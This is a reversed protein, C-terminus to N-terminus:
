LGGGCARDDGGIAHRLVLVADIHGVAFSRENGASGFTHHHKCAIIDGIPIDDDHLVVVIHEGDIFVILFKELAFARFHGGALRNGSHSVAADGVFTSVEVELQPM